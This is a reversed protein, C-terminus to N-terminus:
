EAYQLINEINNIYYFNCLKYYLDMQEESTLNKMRLVNLLSDAIEEQGSIQVTSIWLLGIFLLQKM